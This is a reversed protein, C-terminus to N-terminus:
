CISAAKLVWKQWASLSYRQSSVVAYAPYWTALAAYCSLGIGISYSMSVSANDLAGNVVVGDAKTAATTSADVTVECTVLGTGVKVGTLQM